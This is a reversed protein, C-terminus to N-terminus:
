QTRSAKGGPMYGKEEKRLIGKKKKPLTPAKGKGQRRRKLAPQNKEKHSKSEKGQQSGGSKPQARLTKISGKAYRTDSPGQGTLTNAIVKPSTAQVRTANQEEGPGGKGQHNNEGYHFFVGDKKKLGKSHREQIRGGPRSGVRPVMLRFDKREGTKSHPPLRPLRIKKKGV